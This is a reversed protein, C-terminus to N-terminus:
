AVPALRDLMTKGSKLVILTNRLAGIDDLANGRVALVDARRGPKLTGFQDSGIAEAAQGTATHIAAAPSLGIHEVLLELDLQFDDFLTSSMGADNGSIIKAGARVLSALSELRKHRTHRQEQSLEGSRSLRQRNREGAGLTPCIYIGAEVIADALQPEYEGEATGTLPMFACHEITRVRAQVANEIGATGLCHAAVYRDLRAADESIALMEDRTFQAYRPNSNPTLRGGTAMVKIYDAGAKVQQRVAKKVDTISDCEIGFFYCHGGTSTLVDGSAWIHPAPILGSRSAERLAFVISNLTGCDRITTVGSEISARANEVARVVKTEYSDDLADRLVAPGASCTLHTHMNILGPLLTADGLDRAGEVRSGLDHRRGVASIAGDEIRLFADQLPPSGTGDYLRAALLITEAL